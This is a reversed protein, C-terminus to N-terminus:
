EVVKDTNQNQKQPTAKLECQDTKLKELAVLKQHVSFDPYEIRMDSIIGNQHLKMNLEYDALQESGDETGELPFVAMRIDWSPVKLLSQDLTQASAEAVHLASHDADHHQGIFSNIQVVGEQDSGDFVNALYFKHGREAAQLLAATHATPFATTKPLDFSLGQPLSFRALGSQNPTINASGRIDEYTEGDRKRRSTFSLREGDFSEFTSFDSSITLPESDAYDYRLSFRHNTMWGECSPKWEFYMKGRIDIIQSGKKASSLRVDYTARHAALEQAIKVPAPPVTVAAM